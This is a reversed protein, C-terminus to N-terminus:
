KLEDAVEALEISLTYLANGLTRLEEKTFESPKGNKLHNNLKQSFWSGSKGFFREAVYSCNLVKLIDSDKLGVIM